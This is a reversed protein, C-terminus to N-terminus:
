VSLVQVCVHYVNVLLSYDYEYRLCASNSCFHCMPSSPVVHAELMSALLDWWPKEMLCNRQSWVSKAQQNDDLEGTLEELEETQFLSFIIFIMIAERKFWCMGSIAQPDAAVRFESQSTSVVSHCCHHLRISLGGQFLYLCHQIREHRQIGPLRTYMRWQNQFKQSTRCDRWSRKRRKSKRWSTYKESQKMKLKLNATTFYYFVANISSRLFLLKDM